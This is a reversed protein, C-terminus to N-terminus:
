LVIRRPSYLVYALLILQIALGRASSVDTSAMFDTRQDVFVAIYFAITLASIAFFAIWDRRREGYKRTRRLIAILMAVSILLQLFQFADRV